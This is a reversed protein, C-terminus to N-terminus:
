WNEKEWGNDPRGSIDGLKGRWERITRDGWYEAYTLKIETRRSGKASSRNAKIVDGKPLGGGRKRGTLNFCGRGYFNKPVTPRAQGGGGEKESHALPAGRVKEM